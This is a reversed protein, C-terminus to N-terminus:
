KSLVFDVTDRTNVVSVKQEAKYEGGETEVLYIGPPLNDFFYRGNAGSTTTAVLEGDELKKVSVTIGPLPSGTAFSLVTGDLVPHVTYSVIIKLAGSVIIKDPRPQFNKIFVQHSISIIDQRSVEAHLSIFSSIEITNTFVSRKILKTVSNKGNSAVAFLKLLTEIRLVGQELIESSFREIRHYVEVDSVPVNVGISGSWDIEKELVEVSHNQENM